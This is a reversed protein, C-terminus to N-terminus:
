RLVSNRIFKNHFKGGGTTVHVLAVHLVGQALARIYFQVMMTAKIIFCVRLLCAPLERCQKINAVQM